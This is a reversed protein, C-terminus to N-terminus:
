YMRQKDPVLRISGEPAITQLAEMRYTAAEQFLARREEIPIQAKPGLIAALELMLPLYFEQPFDISDGAADFDEFPRHYTFEIVYQGTSFRPFFYISGYWTTSSTPDATLSGLSADYYIQNPVGSTTRSGLNFYDKRAVIDIEWSSNNPINMINAEIIRLPRQIRGTTATYSYVRRGVAAATQSNAGIVFTTGNTVSSITTWYVTGSDLEIGVQDAATMGTTDAVVISTASAAKATAISTSIYSTVVHSNTQISSVASVPLLTGRKLAWLPMGDAARLKVIMNLLKAAETVQAASASVGEGVVGIHQYALDILNDRTLTFDFSGSTAM